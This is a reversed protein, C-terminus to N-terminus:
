FPIDDDLDDIYEAASKERKAPAKGKGAKAPSDKKGMGGFENSVYPVLETIRLATTYVGKKKGKGYDVVRLKYDVRTGNGIAVNEDWPEDDANYIRIPENEDGARTFEPKRLNLFPGKDPNKPDDREKLRDLLREDKLFQVDDPELEYSWERGTGEYNNHLARRGVIKAWYIRGTGYYTTANEAM